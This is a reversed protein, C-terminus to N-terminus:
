NAIFLIDKKELVQFHSMRIAVIHLITSSQGHSQDKM